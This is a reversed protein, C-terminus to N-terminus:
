VVRTNARAPWCIIIIVNARVAGSFDILLVRADLAAAPRWRKAAGLQSAIDPLPEFPCALLHGRGFPNIRQPRFVQRDHDDDDGSGRSM